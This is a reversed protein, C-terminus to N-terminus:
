KKIIKNGYIQKMAKLFLQEAMVLYKYPHSVRSTLQQYLSKIEEYFVVADINKDDHYQQNLKEIKLVLTSVEDSLKELDTQSSCDSHLLNVPHTPMESVLPLDSSCANCECDFMFHDRLWQRREERIMFVATPFYNDSVEEGARVPKCVVGVVTNNIHYKVINQHCSTNLLCLSPYVGCGISRMDTFLPRQDHTLVTEVIAHTNYRMICLTILIMEVMIRVDDDTNNIYGSTVLHELQVSASIIMSIKIHDPTTRWHSVLSYFSHYDEPLFMVEDSGRVHDQRILTQHKDRWFMSSKSTIIRYCLHHHSSTLEVKDIEERVEEWREVLRQGCEHQHHSWALDRCRSSCYTVLCCHRCWVPALTVRTQCNDCYQLRLQHKVVSSLPKETLVVDGPCLDRTAVGYRGRGESYQISVSDQFAPVRQNVSEMNIEQHPEQTKKTQKIFQKCKLKREELKHRSDSPYGSELALDVDREAEEYKKLKFLALSRNAVALSFTKSVGTDKEFQSKMAASSFKEVSARLQGGQFLKNGEVRLKESEEDSKCDHEDIEYKKITDGITQQVNNYVDFVNEFDDLKLQYNRLSELIKEMILMVSTVIFQNRLTLFYSDHTDSRCISSLM